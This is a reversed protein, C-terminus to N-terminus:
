LMVVAERWRRDFVIMAFVLCASASGAMVLWSVGPGLRGEYLLSRFVRLFHFLPNLRLVEDFRGDVISSPWLVPTVYLGLLLALQTLHMADQFRVALPAILLGVGVGFVLLLALPIVVLPVTWTLTVGSVAVVIVLPVLAALLNVAAGLAAAVCLVEPPVYIKSVVHADALMAAGAGIVTQQFFTYLVLGSVLYVVYPVDTQVKFARSFVVWLVATTLVPTLLTWWVGLLSRKYRVVIDRGVLLRILARMRWLTRFQQLVPTERRASDYVAAASL